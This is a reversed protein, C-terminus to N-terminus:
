VLFCTLNCPTPFFLTPVPNAQKQFGADSNGGLLQWYM